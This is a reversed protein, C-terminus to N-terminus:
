FRERAQQYLWATRLHYLVTMVIVVIEMVVLMVPPAWKRKAWLMRPLPVVSSVLLIVLSVVGACLGFMLLATIQRAVSVVGGSRSFMVELMLSQAQWLAFMPAFGFVGMVFYFWASPSATTTKVFMRTFGAVIGILGVVIALYLTIVIVMNAESIGASVAGIGATEADRMARMVNIFLFASGAAGIAPLAYSLAPIIRALISVRSPPAPPLNADPTM